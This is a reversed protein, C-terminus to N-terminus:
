CACPGIKLFLRVLRSVNAHYVPRSAIPTKSSPLGPPGISTSSTLPSDISFIGDLLHDIDGRAVFRRASSTSCGRPKVRCNQFWPGPANRAWCTGIPSGNRLDPNGLEQEMNGSPLGLNRFATESGGKLDGTYLSRATPSQPSHRRHCAEQRLSALSHARIIKEMWDIRAESFTEVREIKFLGFGQEVCQPPSWCLNDSSASMCHRSRACLPCLKKLPLATRAHQLTRKQCLASM